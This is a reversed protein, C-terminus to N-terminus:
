VAHRSSERCAANAAKLVEVAKPPDPPIQVTFQAKCADCSYIVLDMRSGAAHVNESHCLPCVIAPSPM